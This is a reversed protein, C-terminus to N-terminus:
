TVSVIEQNQDRVKQLYKQVQQNVSKESAQRMADDLERLKVVLWDDWSMKTNSM